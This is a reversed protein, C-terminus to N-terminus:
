PVEQRPGIKRGLRVAVAPSSPAPRVDPRCLTRGRSTGGVAIFKMLVRDARRNGREHRATRPHRAIRPALQPARDAPPSSISRRRLGTTTATWFARGDITLMWPSFVTEVSPCALWPP